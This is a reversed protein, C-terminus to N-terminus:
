KGKRSKNRKEKNSCKKNMGCCYNGKDSYNKDFYQKQNEDLLNSVEDHHKSCKDAMQKSIADKDAVNSANRKKDRLVNMEDFHKKQMDTIKTKQQETLSPINDYCCYTGKDKQPNQANLWPLQILGMLLLLYMLKTRSLFQFIVEKKM